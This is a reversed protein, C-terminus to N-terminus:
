KEMLVQWVFYGTPKSKTLDKDLCWPAISHMQFQKEIKKLFVKLFISIYEELPQHLEATSGDAGPSEKSSM